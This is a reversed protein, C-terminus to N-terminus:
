YSVGNRATGGGLSKAPRVQTFQHANIYLLVCRFMSRRTKFSIGKLLSSRSKDLSIFYVMKYIFERCIWHNTAFYRKGM